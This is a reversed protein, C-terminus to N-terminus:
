FIILCENVRVGVAAFWGDVEICVVVGVIIVGVLSDVDVAAFWEVVVM